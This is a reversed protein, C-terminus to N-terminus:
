QRRLTYIAPLDRYRQDFDMGYGVVFEDPVTLGVYDPQLTVRRRAPKNLFTVIKVSSPDFAEVYDFVASTTAGTDVIDEVILVDADKVVDKKIELTVKPKGSSVTSAEYSSVRIFEISRVPTNMRRVLDSLFIFSGKLVGIVVLSTGGLSDDIEAALRDVARAIETSSILPTMQDM